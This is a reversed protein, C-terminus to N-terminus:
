RKKLYKEIFPSIARTELPVSSNNYIFEFLNSIVMRDNPLLVLAKEWSEKAMQFNEQEYYATGLNNFTENLHFKDEPPYNEIARQYYKVAARYDKKEVYNIGFIYNSRPHNPNKELAKALYEDSKKRDFFSWCIGYRCLIEATTGIKSEAQGMHFLAKELHGDQADCMAFVIDKFAKQCCFKYKQGSACPCPGYTEPVFSEVEEKSIEDYEPDTPQAQNGMKFQKFSKSFEITFPTLEKQIATNFQIKLGACIASVVETLPDKKLILISRPTTGAQSCSNKILSLIKSLSPLDKSTEMGFCHGTKADLIVYVDCIGDQLTEIEERHIIWLDNPNKAESIEV